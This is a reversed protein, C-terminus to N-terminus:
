KVEKFFDSMKVNTSGGMSKIVQKLMAKAEGATAGTHIKMDNPVKNLLSLSAQYQKVELGLRLGTTKGFQYENPLGGGGRSRSGMGGAAGGGGARGGM